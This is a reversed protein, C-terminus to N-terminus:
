SESSYITGVFNSDGVRTIHQCIHRVQINQTLIYYCLKCWWWWWSHSVSEAAAAAVYVVAAAAAVTDGSAPVCVVAAAATMMLLLLLLLVEEEEVTGCHFPFFRNGEGEGRRVSTDSGTLPSSPSPPSSIRAGRICLEGGEEGGGQVGEGHVGCGGWEGVVVERLVWGVGGLWAKRGRERERLIEAM